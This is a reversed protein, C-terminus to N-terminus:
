VLLYLTNIWFFLLNHFCLPPEGRSQIKVAWFPPLRFLSTDFVLIKVDGDPMLRQKHSIMTLTTHRWYVRWFDPLLRLEYFDKTAAM